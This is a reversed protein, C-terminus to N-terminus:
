GVEYQNRSEHRNCVVHKFSKLDWGRVQLVLTHVTRAAQQSIQPNAGIAKLRIIDDFSNVTFRPLLLSAVGAAAWSQSVLRLQKINHLDSSEFIIKKIEFPFVDQQAM